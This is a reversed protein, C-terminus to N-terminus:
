VEAGEVGKLLMPDAAATALPAKSEIRQCLQGVILPLTQTQTHTRGISQTNRHRQRHAHGHTHRHTYEHGDTVQHTDTLVTHLALHPFM